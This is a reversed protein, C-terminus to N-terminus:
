LFVAKRNSSMEVILRKEVEKLKVRRLINNLYNKKTKEDMFTPRCFLRRPISAKIDRLELANELDALFQAAMQECTEKGFLFADLEYNLQFSRVDMNASGISSMWDDVVLTKAHLFGRQYRYIRVGAELLAPFYSNAALRVLWKDSREPVLLRTDVGRLAASTIAAEVTQSPV